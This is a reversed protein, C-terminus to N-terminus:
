DLAIGQEKAAAVIYTDMVDLAQPDKAAAKAGMKFLKRFAAASHNAKGNNWLDYYGNIALRLQELAPNNEANPVPGAMPILASLADAAAQHKGESNWYTNRTDSNFVDVM